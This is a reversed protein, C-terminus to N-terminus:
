EVLQIRRNCLISWLITLIVWECEDMVHEMKTENTWISVNHFFGFSYLDKTGLVMNCMTIVNPFKWVLEKALWLYYKNTTPFNERCKDNPWIHISITSAGIPKNNFLNQYRSDLEHLTCFILIFSCAFAQACWLHYWNNEHMNSKTLIKHFWKKTSKSWTGICHLGIMNIHAKIKRLQSQDDVGRQEM